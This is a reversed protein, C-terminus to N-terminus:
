TDGILAYYNHSSLDDFMEEIDFDNIKVVRLSNLEPLFIAFFQGNNSFKMIARTVKTSVEFGLVLNKRIELNKGDDHHLLRLVM